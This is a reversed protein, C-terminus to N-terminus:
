PKDLEESFLRKNLKDLGNGQVQPLVGEGGVIVFGLTLYLLLSKIAVKKQIWYCSLILMCIEAEVSLCQQAGRLDKTGHGPSRAGRVGSSMASPLLTGVHLRRLFHRSSIAEPANGLHLHVCIAPDTADTERPLSCIHRRVGDGRVPAARVQRYAASEQRCQM